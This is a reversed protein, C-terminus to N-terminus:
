RAMSTKSSMSGLSMDVFRGSLPAKASGVSWAACVAVAARASLAFWFEPECDDSVLAGFAPYCRDTRAPLEGVFSYGLANCLGESPTPLAQVLRACPETHDGDVTPEEVIALVRRCGSADTPPRWQHFGSVTLTRRTASNQGRHGTRHIGCEHTNDNVYLLLASPEASAVAHTCVGGASVMLVWNRIRSRMPALNGSV